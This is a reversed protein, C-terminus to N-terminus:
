TRMSLANSLRSIALNQYALITMMPRVIDEDTGRSAEIQELLREVEVLLQDTTKESNVFPSRIM